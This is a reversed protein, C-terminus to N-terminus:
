KENTNKLKKLFTSCIVMKDDVMEFFVQHTVFTLRHVACIELFSSFCDNVPKFSNNM